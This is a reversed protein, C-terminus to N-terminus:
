RAPLKALLSAPFGANAAAVRSLAKLNANNLTKIHKMTVSDKKSFNKGNM